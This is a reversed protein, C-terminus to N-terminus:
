VQVADHKLEDEPVRATRVGGAGRRRGGWGLSVALARRQEAVGCGRRADGRSGRRGHGGGRQCEQGVRAISGALPVAGRQIETCLLKGGTLCWRRGQVHTRRDVPRRPVCTTVMTLMGTSATGGTCTGASDHVVLVAGELADADWRHLRCQM